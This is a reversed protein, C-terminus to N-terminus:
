RMRGWVILDDGLRDYKMEELRPIGLVMEASSIGSTTEMEVPLPASSILPSEFARLGGLLVPAITLVILDVMRYLLFRTIVQAGGEVMLSGIGMETLCTLLASLSLYGGEDVPLPILRAGRQELAAAKKAYSRSMNENAPQRTAVWVSRDGQFVRADLPLRLHSDLVIPQPNIGELLRVTLRPDDAIVTGIGVLIADHAARLQHTLQLSEPGSLATSVGRRASISGDLSQAYSLTVCPRGNGPYHGQAEILWDIIPVM